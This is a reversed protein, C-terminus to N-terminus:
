PCLLDNALAFVMLSAILAVGASMLVRLARDSPTRGTVAEYAHFVLHGGDLVPIPFLNILGISTSLVAILSIFELGGQSAVQGSIQAIGVPGSLNCSSIVGTIMSWLGTLSSGIIFWVREVGLRLASAPGIPESAPEIAAQSGVGIMLRREFGGDPLPVDRPRPALAVEFTEGERWVELLIPAGGSADVAGRLDEFVAVPAGDAAVVVDGPRLDAAAAASRPQVSGVLAPYPHPGPVTVERGEREVTWDLVPEGPLEGPLLGGALAEGAVALVRDGPELGQAGVPLPRVSEVTLPDAPRGQAMFILAFLLFSLVFNFAPGAAVTAARAWLPAGHMSRDRRDAPLHVMEAESARGVSAADADGVFKVYGGLPLAALQWRTGRRDMRSALVPGFGLSFVEADIGSWRGVIYHGFEHVAVIISLAVVFAALTWFLGGFGAILGVVDM